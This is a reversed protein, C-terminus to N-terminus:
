QKPPKVLIKQSTNDKDNGYNSQPTIISDLPATWIYRQYTSGWRISKGNQRNLSNGKKQHDTVSERTKSDSLTFLVTKGDEMIEMTLRYSGLFHPTTMWSKAGKKAGDHLATPLWVDWFGESYTYAHTKSFTEGVLAKGDAMLEAKGIQMMSKVSPMDKIDDLMKGGIIVSNEPGQGTMFESFLSTKNIDAPNYFPNYEERVSYDKNGHQNTYLYKSNTFDLAGLGETKIIAGAPYAHQVYVQGAPLSKVTEDYVLDVSIANGTKDYQITKMFGEAGDLDIAAIPRNSAFQYPTLMPYKYALPDKSLFRGLRTDYIRMGYDQDGTEQDNEKGNFGYRYGGTNFIRGVMQMGFPYYDTANVIDANYYDITNGDSSHAIKKDTITALVNGLHNSLEYYKKGSLQWAADANATTPVIGPQWMGLRSSGYLHQEDWSFNSNKLSYVAMVNGQADRVYYTTAGSGSVAKSIRNGTADYEYQITGSPTNNVTKIKGYVTWDISKNGDKILNGIADYDYYGPSQNKIDTTYVGDNADDKVYQLKNNQLRSNNDRNYKYTLLDMAQAQNGNRNYSLINGNADYTISEKYMNNALATPTWTNNAANLGNFANMQTIRNLQDYKYRYQLPEWNPVAINVSMAGINGNYLPKIGAADAFPNAANVPTYDNNYYHLAYGFADKNSANTNPSSGDKGMDFTSNPVTSNVGKLWGQLTYAYDLGQVKDKGLEMRVLPGHLYYTYHADKQWTSPANVDGNLKTYADTLRNDADYEYMYSFQDGKGRQYLVKNVKGSVLDYQYELRKLGDDGSPRYSASAAVLQANEQVLLDVNGNIDYSYYSAATRNAAANRGSSLIATAAVRKRLNLQNNTVGAPVWNPQADYATVTVQSQTGTALWDDIVISEFNAAVATNGQTEGVEGIRGLADYLTYSYKGLLQQKANQSVVLRGLMDYWFKSIGADPSTQAIVQNLSNYQYNTPLQHDPVIFIRAYEDTTNGITTESGPAPINFRGWALLPAGNLAGQPNMCGNRYNALVEAASITRNYMRLHKLIAIDEAPLTFSTTGSEVEWAFPYSPMAPGTNQVTLAHGDLYLQLDDGETLKTGAQVVLHSWAQLAPLASLDAYVQNTATISIDGTGPDLSYIEVWLKKDNIAAQYMYKNDPTKIRVQKANNATSYLWMEIAKGTSTTLSSSVATLVTNKDTSAGGSYTCNMVDNKRADPVLQADADSLAQVGEPPITKVLNGAQDYYYLTYHYESTQGALQVTTNTALCTSVYSNRFKIRELAIYSDYAQGAVDFVNAIAAKQCALPDQPYSAAGAKNYLIASGTCTAAFQIYETASLSYGYAHNLYTVLLNNYLKSGETVLPYASKFASIADKITTCGKGSESAPVAFAVPITPDYNLVNVAVDPCSLTCRTQIDQLQAQTMIFDDGLLGKLYEYFTGPSGANVWQTSFAAVNTCVNPNSLDSIMPGVAPANKDYPYPEPLLYQNFGKALLNNPLVGIIAQFAAAFSTYGSYSKGAPPAPLTSAPKAGDLTTAFDINDWAVKYLENALNAIITNSIGSSAEPFEDDRVTTLKDIWIEKLDLLDAKAANKADAVKAAVAADYEVQNNVAPAGNLICSIANDMNVYDDFIRKKNQYLSYLPDATCSSPLPPTYPDCSVTGALSYTTIVANYPEEPPANLACRFRGYYSTEIVPATMNMGPMMVLPPNLPSSMYDITTQPECGGPTTAMNAVLQSYTNQMLNIKVPRSVPGGIHRVYVNRTTNSHNFTPDTPDSPTSSLPGYVFEFEAPAPCSGASPNSTSSTCNSFTYNGIFCNKCDPKDASRAMAVYKSRLQLYYSKFLEWEKNKARCDSSPISSYTNQWKTVFDEQPTAKYYLMWDILKYIDRTAPSGATGNTMGLVNTINTLDNVMSAKYTSYAIFFPDQNVIPYSATSRNIDYYNKAIADDGTTVKEDITQSFAAVQSHETCWQYSCYEIHRTVFNNAWEPHDLYAKIFESETLDKIYILTGAANTYSINTFEKYFRMVNVDRELFTYTDTTINYSYKGYQGDPLVDNKLEELKADCPSIAACNLQACQVILKQYVAAIADLTEQKTPDLTYGPYKDGKQKNILDQMFATFQPLTGVKETCTYCDTYCGSLDAQQLQENFFMELTKLDLNHQIYYDEQYKVQNASLQLVYTVNYEGPELSVTKTGTFAAPTACSIDAETFVALPAINPTKDVGCNDTVRLVLEYYCNSCFGSKTQTAKLAAPSVSYNFTYTGTTTALFTTNYETKLTTADPVMDETRILNETFSRKGPAQSPLNDLSSNPKSEGALATAVTKGNADIYSVSAQGNPDIVMNKLYHSADGVEMGFLRDLEFQLPKGYFYKTEQGSGIQFTQGVGGQRSIRGTNDQTYQTTSFPFGGADPVYKMFSLGDINLFPNAPSYYQSAGSSASLPGANIACDISGPLSYPLGSNNRNFNPQYNLTLSSSPAPLINVAPRGMNDYITEGVVAVNDSSNITVIQRNRLSGDFYSVVSKRKADEAFSSTFQLNLNEQRPPIAIVISYTADKKYAWDYITGIEKKVENSYAIMRVRGVIYGDSYPMDILYNTNGTGVTVRTNDFRMWEDITAGPLAVNVIGGAADKPLPAHYQDQLIKGYDSLADIFTWEVEYAQEGCTLPFSCAHPDAVWSMLVSPAPTGTIAPPAPSPADDEAPMMAGNYAGLTEQILPITTKAVANMQVVPKAGPTIPYTRNVIVQNKIRFVPPLKNGWEPSSISNVIAIVKYANNLKYSATMPFVAGTATDYKVVLKINNIEEPTQQDKSTYYKLTVDLTCTFTKSQYYVSTDQRLEFTLINLVSTNQIKNWDALPLMAFKEDVVTCSDGKKIKGTLTQMYSEEAALTKTFSLIMILLIYLSNRLYRSMLM